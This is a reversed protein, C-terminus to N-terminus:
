KSRLTVLVRRNIAVKQQRRTALFKCGGAGTTHTWFDEEYSHEKDIQRARSAPLHGCSIAPKRWDRRGSITSQPEGVEGLSRATIVSPQRRTFGPRSEGLM